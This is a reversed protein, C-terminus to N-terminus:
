RKNSQKKFQDPANTLSPSKNSGINFTCYKKQRKIEKEPCTRCVNLNSVHLNKAMFVRVWNNTKDKKKSSKPIGLKHAFRSM